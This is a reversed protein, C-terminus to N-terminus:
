LTYPVSPLRERAGHRTQNCQTAGCRQLAILRPKDSKKEGSQRTDVLEAKISSGWGAAFPAPDDKSGQVVVSGFFCLFCFFRPGAGGATLRLLGKGQRGPQAAQRVAAQVQEMPFTSGIETNLVGERLLRGVRRFLGLMTWISQKNAWESLWFGEIQKHGAIL